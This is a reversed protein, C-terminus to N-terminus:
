TERRGIGEREGCSSRIVLQTPVIARYVHTTKGEIKDIALNAANQGILLGNQEVTTLPVNSFEAELTNDFGVIGIDRGVELGEEQFIRVCQLAIADNVAFIGLPLRQKLESLEEKLKEVFFRHMCHPYRAPDEKIDIRTVASMGFDEVAKMYGDFRENVSSVDSMHSVFAVSRFGQMAIHRVASYAGGRNDSGVYDVDALGPNRDILGLYVRRRHLWDLKEAIKSEDCPYLSISRVGSEVLREICGIEEDALCDSCAAVTLYGRKRAQKEFGSFIQGCLGAGSHGAVFGLLMSRQGSNHVPLGSNVVTGKGRTRKLYGESVLEEMAQRVPYRSIGYEKCLENETLVFEGPIFEGTMIKEVIVNKLQMYLPIRSNKDLGVIVGQNLFIYPM